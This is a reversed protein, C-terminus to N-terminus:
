RLLNISNNNRYMSDEYIKQKVREIMQDVDYDDAIEDVQVDIDFYNGSSSKTESAPLHLLSSLADKLLIFNQTDQASLVMEPKAKTGDLWAPGTFDALGGTRYAKLYKKNIVGTVQGEKNAAGILYNGNGRDSLIKFAGEKGPIVGAKRVSESMKAGSAFYANEEVRVYDGVTPTWTPTVPTDPVPDVTQTGGGNTQAGSGAGVSKLYETLSEEDYRTGTGGARDVQANHKNMLELITNDIKGGNKNYAAVIQSMYDVSDGQKLTEEYERAKTIKEELDKLWKAYDVETMAGANEAASLLTYLTSGQKIQGEQLYNKLIRMAEGNYQGNEEAWSLQDQLLQIQRERQEAAEDNQTQLDQLAQDVLSDGYSEKENAIEEELKRIEMANAGSTDQRLYALRREKEAISQETDENERDQRLKDINSQIADLLDSSANNISDNVKELEEIEQNEEFVLADVIRSILDGYEDRGRDALEKVSEEIEWIGDEVDEIEGLIDELEKVYDSVDEYKDPNSKALKDIKGWNIEVTNDKDNYWAYDKYKSNKSIVDKLEERRLQLLEEQLTKERNLSDLTDKNNKQLQAGTTARDELLRNYERELKERNRMEAEINQVKNYQKDFSNSATKKTKKSANNFGGDKVPVIKPIQYEVTKTGLFSSYGEDDSSIPIKAEVTEWVVKFAGTKVIDDLMKQIEDTVGQLPTLLNSFEITGTKADITIGEKTTALFQLYLEQFREMKDIDGQYAEEILALNDRVFAYAESGEALKESDFGLTLGVNQIDEPTVNKLDSYGETVEKISESVKDYQKESEKASIANALMVKAQQTAIKKNEVTEGSVKQLTKKYNEFTADTVGILKARTELAKFDQEPTLGYMVNFMERSINAKDANVRDITEAETENQQLVTGGGWYEEYSKKILDILNQASYTSFDKKSGDQNVDVGLTQALETLQDFTLAGRADMAGKQGDETIYTLAGNVIREGLVLASEESGTIMADKANEWAQGREIAYNLDGSMKGLIASTHGSIISLLTELTGGIYVWEDIGNAVFDDESAGAELLLKKAEDDFIYDGDRGEIDKALDELTKIEEKFAELDIERTAGALDILTEELMNFDKEAFLADLGLEKIEDSFTKISDINSWDIVNIALAMNEAQEETLGKFLNGLENSFGAANGGSLMVDYIKNAISEIAGSNVGSQEIISLDIDFNELKEKAKEFGAVALSANEILLQRFEDTTYGLSQAVSELTQGNETEFYLDFHNKNNSYALYAEALSKSMGEGEKELSKMLTKRKTPNISFLKDYFANMDKTIPDLVDLSALARALGEKGVKELEEPLEELGTKGLYLETLKEKTQGMYKSKGTDIDDYFKNSDIQESFIELITNAYESGSLEASMGNNLIGKSYGRIIADTEDRKGSFEKAGKSLEQLTEASINTQEALNQLASSYITYDGIIADYLVAKSEDKLDEVTLDNAGLWTEIDKKTDKSTSESSYLELLEDRGRGTLVKDFATVDEELIADFREQLAEYGLAEPTRQGYNSTGGVNAYVKDAQKQSEIRLKEIELYANAAISATQAANTKEQQKATFESRGEQNITLEGNEGRKIYKALEPYTQIMKLVQNNAEILAERWEETGKTLGSLTEQAEDYSEFSSMLDDYAQEAQEAASTFGEAENTLRELKEENTEIIKDLIKFAAVIALIGAIIRGIPFKYFVANLGQQAVTAEGAAMTQAETASVLGLTELTNLRTQQSGFLLLRYNNLRTLIGKKQCALMKSEIVLAELEERNLEGQALRNFLKAKAADSQAIVAADELPIKQALILNAEEESFGLAMTASIAKKKEATLYCERVALQSTLSAKQYASLNETAQLTTARQVANAYLTEQKALRQLSLTAKDLNATNIPPTIFFQRSFVRKTTAAAKAVSANIGLELQQGAMVGGAYFAQGMSVFMANFASKAIKFSAFVLGLSAISKIIGNGGSLLNLMKNLGEIIGTLGDIFVKIAKNDAIGMLFTQWAVSLKNLKTQLSELTKEYQKQSAGSSNNAANVLEMTREYDSMMAIFRSQQRYGAAITSIYRQTNTDLDGWKASIELFVDDLDRFQGSTDRLAVGITRLAGEIKNADITEGDIEGIESPAKKLEQFRAIVTKLATGATEAAERTTEIIQSLLASTTEFEMNASHAISATKTMATAIEQTNSASMAALQSYVDNIRQASVENIEMNFGRLAATMMDTADAAEMGAIRAMKLTENAVEQAQAMKLGQQLYLTTAEYAGKISVGLDRANKSFEPLQEWYDGVGEPTVVAMQTMVEDLEKVTKFANNIARKFLMVSNTLGFFYQVRSKLMGLESNFQQQSSKAKLIEASTKTFSQKLNDVTATTEKTHDNLKTLESNALTQQATKAENLQQTLSKLDPTQLALLVQRIEDLGQKFNALSKSGEKLRNGEAYASLKELAAQMEAINNHAFGERFAKVGGSKGMKSLAKETAAGLNDIDITIAKIGGDEFKKNITSQLKEVKQAAAELEPINLGSLSQKLSDSSIKGMENHLRGLLASVREGHKELGTIDGKTKFGSDLIKQYKAMEKELDSFIGKFNGALKDPLKLKNLFGQVDQVKNQVESFDAKAKVDIVLTGKSLANERRLYFILM